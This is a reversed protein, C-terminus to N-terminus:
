NGAKTVRALIGLRPSDLHHLEDRKMRRNERLRYSVHSGDGAPQTYLMDADLHLYHGASLSVTGDVPAIGAATPEGWHLHLAPADDEPPDKQVWSLRIVPQYRKSNQLKQWQPTLGFQEAPLISIGARSLGASDGLELARSMDPLAPHRGLEGAGGWKDVFVILDVRYSEAQAALPLLLSLTLLIRATFNM